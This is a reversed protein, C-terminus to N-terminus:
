FMRKQHHRQCKVDGQLLPEALLSIKLAIYPLDFCIKMTGWPKIM